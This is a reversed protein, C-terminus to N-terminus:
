ALPRIVPKISAVGGTQNVTSGKTGSRVKFYRVGAFKDPNVAVYVTGSGVANPDAVQYEGDKDILPAYTTGDPSVDFTLKASTGWTAILLGCLTHGQLDESAGSLSAGAAITM